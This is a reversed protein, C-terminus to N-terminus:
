ECRNALSSGCAQTADHTRTRPRLSGAQEAAHDRAGGFGRQAADTRDTGQDRPTTVTAEVEEPPAQIARDSADNNPDGCGVALAITAAGIVLMRRDMVAEKCHVDRRSGPAARAEKAAPVPGRGRDHSRSRRPTTGSRQSTRDRQWSGPITDMSAKVAADRQDRVYQKLDVVDGVDKDSM